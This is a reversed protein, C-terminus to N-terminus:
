MYRHVAPLVMCAGDGASWIAFFAAEGELARGPDRWSEAGVPGRGAAPPGHFAPLRFLCMWTYIAPCVPKSIPVHLSCPWCVPSRAGSALLPAMSRGASGGAATVAPRVADADSPGEPGDASCLATTPTSAQPRHVGCFSGYRDGQEGSQLVKFVNCMICCCTKSLLQVCPFGVQLSVAGSVAGYTTKTGHGM